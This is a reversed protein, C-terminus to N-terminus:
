TAERRIEATANLYSWRAVQSFEQLEAGHDEAVRELASAFELAAEIMYPTRDFNDRAASQIASVATSYQCM